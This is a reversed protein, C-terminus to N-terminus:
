DIASDIVFCNSLSTIATNNGVGAMQSGGPIVYKFHDFLEFVEIWNMPNPYKNEIRKFENTMRRHMDEPDKELLNGQKDKLAYKDIFVNAALEDGNFYILCEKFAEERSYM